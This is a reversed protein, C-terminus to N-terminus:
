PVERAVVLAAVSKEELWAQVEVVVGVRYLLKLSAVKAAPSTILALEEAM